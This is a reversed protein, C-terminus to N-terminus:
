KEALMWSWTIIVTVPLWQTGQGASDSRAVVTQVEQEPPRVQMADGVVRMSLKTLWNSSATTPPLVIANPAAPSTSPRRTAPVVMADAASGRTERPLATVAEETSPDPNSAAFATSPLVDVRQAETSPRSGSHSRTSRPEACVILRTFSLQSAAYALDYRTCVEGSPEAHVSTYEVLAPSPPM